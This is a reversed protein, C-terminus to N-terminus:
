GRKVKHVHHGGGGKRDEIAGWGKNFVLKIYGPFGFPGCLGGEGRGDVIICILEEHTKPCRLHITLRGKQCSVQQYSSEVCYQRLLLKWTWHHTSIGLM